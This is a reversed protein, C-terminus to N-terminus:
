AYLKINMGGCSHGVLIYPPAIAAAALLDDVINTSTGPRWHRVWCCARWGWLWAFFLPAILLDAASIRGSFCCHADNRGGGGDGDGDVSERLVDRLSQLRGRLM